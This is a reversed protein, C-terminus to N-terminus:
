DFDNYKMTQELTRKESARKESAKKQPAKKTTGIGINVKVLNHENYVVSLVFGHYRKNGLALAIKDIERRNLLLKKKTNGIKADSFIMNWLFVEGNEIRIFSEKIEFANSRIAKVEAGKLAIGAEYKKEVNYKFLAFKNNKIVM